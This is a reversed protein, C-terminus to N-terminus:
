GIPGIRGSRRRTLLGRARPPLSSAFEERLRWLRHRGVELFRGPILLVVFAANDAQALREVRATTVPSLGLTCSSALNNAQSVPVGPLFSGGLSTAFTAQRASYDAYAHLSVDVPQSLAAPASKVWFLETATLLFAIGAIPVSCTLTGRWRLDIVDVFPGCGTGEQRATEYTRRAAPLWEGVFEVQESSVLGSLSANLEDFLPHQPMTRIRFTLKKETLGDHGGTVGL